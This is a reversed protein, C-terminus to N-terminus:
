YVKVGKNLWRSWEKNYTHVSDTAMESKNVVPQGKNVWDFIGGYLNTINKYGMALLEEGIRESRYGVSCYVVITANKDIPLPNKYNFKEYDLFQAHPLHSVQFEKPSRTDILIIKNGENIKKILDETRIRPVTNKYLSKLKNDFDTQGFTAVCVLCILICTAIVAKKEM